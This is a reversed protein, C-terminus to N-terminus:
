DTADGDAEPAEEAAWRAGYAEEYYDIKPTDILEYSKTTPNYRYTLDNYSIVYSIGARQLYCEFTYAVPMVVNHTHDHKHVYLAHPADVLEAKPRERGGFHSEELTVSAQVGSARATRLLGEYVYCDGSEGVTSMQERFGAYQDAYFTTGKRHGAMTFRKLLTEQGILFDAYGIEELVRAADTMERVFLNFNPEDKVRKLWEEYRTFIDLTEPTPLEAGQSLAASLVSMPTHSFRAIQCSSLTALIHEPVPGAGFQQLIERLESQLQDGGLHNQEVVSQLYATCLPIASIHTVPRRHSLQEILLPVRLGYDHMLSREQPELPPTVADMWSEVEEHSMCGVMVVPPAPEFYESLYGADSDGSLIIVRLQKAIADRLEDIDFGVRFSEVTRGGQYGESLVQDAILSKGSGSLGRLVAVPSVALHQALEDKAQRQAAYLM